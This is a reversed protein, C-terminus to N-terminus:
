VKHHTTILSSNDQLTIGLDCLSEKREVMNSFNESFYQTNDKIDDYVGARLIDFMGNNFEMMQSIKGDLDDNNQLSVISSNTEEVKHFETVVM